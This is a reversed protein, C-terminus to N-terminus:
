LLINLMACVLQGSKLLSADSIKDVTDQETHWYDNLGPASGYDFDILTIAKFGEDMFAVHDDKVMDEVDSVLDELGAQKAAFHAIKRLAPSTNRPLTIALDKDGLMDLCIVARVKRGSAKLQAAARRSGWFGDNAGYSEMCEEGDTWLLMVNGRPTRWDALVNALGVLLGVTSAGDNAGPCKVGPKTDYHSLVVVWEAEANTCFEARLNTFTREGKPTKDVFRDLYVDGGVASASDLIFNAAMRGRVTGADRPTCKAVFDRATREALKADAPTFALAAALIAGSVMM